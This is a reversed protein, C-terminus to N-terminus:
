GGNSEHNSTTPYFDFQKRTPLGLRRNTAHQRKSAKLEVILGKLFVRRYWNNGLGTLVGFLNVPDLEHIGNLITFPSIMFWDNYGDIRHDTYYIRILKEFAKAEAKSVCEFHSMIRLRGDDAELPTDSCNLQQRRANLNNTIGFKHISRNSEPKMFYVYYTM